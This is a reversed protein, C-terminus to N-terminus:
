KTQKPAPTTTPSPPAPKPAAPATPATAGADAMLKGGLAKFTDLADPKNPYDPALKSHCSTCDLGPKKSKNATLFAKMADKADKQSSKKKGDAGICADHVLQTKFVTRHCATGGDDAKASIASIGVVGAIGLVMALLALKKM